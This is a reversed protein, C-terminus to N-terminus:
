LCAHLRQVTQEAVSAFKVADIDNADAARIKLKELSVWCKALQILVTFSLSLRASFTLDLEESAADAMMSLQLIRESDITRLFDSAITGFRKAKIFQIRM